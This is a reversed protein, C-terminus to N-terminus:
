DEKYKKESIFPASKKSGIMGYTKQKTETADQILIYEGDLDTLSVPDVAELAGYVLANGEGAALFSEFAEQDKIQIASAYEPTNKEMNLVLLKNVVVGLLVFLIVFVVWFILLKRKNGIRGGSNQKEAIETTRRRM